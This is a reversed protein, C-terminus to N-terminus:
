DNSLELKFVKISWKAFCLYCHNLLVEQKMKKMNLKKCIYNLREYKQKVNLNLKLCKTPEIKFNTYHQFDSVPLAEQQKCVQM